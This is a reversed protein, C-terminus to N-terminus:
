NLQNIRQWPDLKSRLINIDFKLMYGLGSNSNTKTFAVPKGLFETTEHRDLVNIKKNNM